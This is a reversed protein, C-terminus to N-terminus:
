SKVSSELMKLKENVEISAEYYGICSVGSELPISIDSLLGTRKFYSSPNGIKPKEITEYSTLRTEAFNSGHGNM